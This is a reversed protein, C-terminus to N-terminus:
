VWIIPKNYKLLFDVDKSYKKQVAFGYFKQLPIKSNLLFEYPLGDNEVEDIYRKIKKGKISKISKKVKNIQSKKLRPIITKILSKSYVSPGWVNKYQVNEFCIDQKIDLFFFIYELFPPFGEREFHTETELIKKWNKINNRQEEWLIKAIGLFFEYKYPKLYLVSDKDIIDKKFLIAAPCGKHIYGFGLACMVHATYGVYEDGEYDYSLEKIYSGEEILNKSARLFGDDCLKKLQSLNKVAHSIFDM